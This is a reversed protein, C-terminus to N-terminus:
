FNFLQIHDFRQLLILNETLVFTMIILYYDRLSDIKYM